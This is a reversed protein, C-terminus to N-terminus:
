HHITLQVHIQVNYIAFNYMFNDEELTKWWQKSKTTSSILKYCNSSPMRYRWYHRPNAPINIREATPDPHRLNEDMSLWDQLSLLVLASPSFLHAAVIDECLWGPAPHPATGDKHLATNYYQQTRTMDEDWWQRLPPM